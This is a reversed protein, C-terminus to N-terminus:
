PEDGCNTQRERVKEVSSVFQKGIQAWDYRNEVLDRAQISLLRRLDPDDLLRVAQKAFSTPDDAMLLHQGDVVNLGEAGKRTSVVPTGLAMAELIKLRTGGGALLPVVAATAAAIESRIDEVFGTLIVSEDLPLGSLDLGQKSGTIRLRVGPRHHRIQPYIEGLFFRM